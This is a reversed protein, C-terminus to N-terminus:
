GLSCVSFSSAATVQAHWPQPALDPKIVLTAGAGPAVTGLTLFQSGFRRVSVTAEAAGSRV